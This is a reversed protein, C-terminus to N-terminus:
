VSHDVAQRLAQKLLADNYKSRRVALFRQSLPCGLSLTIRCALSVRRHEIVDNREGKPFLLQALALLDPRAQALRIIGILLKQISNVCSFLQSPAMCLWAVSKIEARGLSTVPAFALSHRGTGIGSDLVAQM